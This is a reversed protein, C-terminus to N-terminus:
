PATSQLTLQNAPAHRCGSHGGPTSQHSRPSRLTGWCLTKQRCTSESAAMHMCAATGPTVTWSCQGLTSVPLPRLKKLANYYCNTPFVPVLNSKLCGHFTHMLFTQMNSLIAHKVNIIESDKSQHNSLQLSEVKSCHICVHRGHSMPNDDSQTLASYM